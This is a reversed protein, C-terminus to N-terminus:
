SISGHLLYEPDCSQGRCRKQQAATQDDVFFVPGPRGRVDDIARGTADDFDDGDRRRM